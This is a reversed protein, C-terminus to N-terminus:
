SVERLIYVERSGERASTKVRLVDRFMAFRRQFNSAPVTQLFVCIIATRYCKPQNRYVLLINYNVSTRICCTRNISEYVSSAMSPRSSGEQRRFRTAALMCWTTSKSKRLSFALTDYYGLTCKGSIQGLQGRYKYDSIVRIYM